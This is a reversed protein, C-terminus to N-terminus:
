VVFSDIEQVQLDQCCMAPLTTLIDEARFDEMDVQALQSDLDRALDDYCGEEYSASLSLISRHQTERYRFLFFTPNYFNFSLPLIRPPQRAPPGLDGWIYIRLPPHM